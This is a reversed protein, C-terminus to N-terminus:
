VVMVVNGKKHGQDIYAHADATEELHYRRDIVSKLKNSEFLTKLEGLMGKLENTPRIGTASFKAKKRSFIGIILM